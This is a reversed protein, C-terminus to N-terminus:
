GGTTRVGGHQWTSFQVRLMFSARAIAHSRASAYALCSSVSLSGCTPYALPAHRLTMVQGRYAYMCAHTYCWKYRACLANIATLVDPPPWTPLRGESWGTPPTGMAACLRQERTERGPGLPNIGRCRRAGAAARCADDHVYLAAPTRKSDGDTLAATPRHGGLGHGCRPGTGVRECARGCVSGSACMKTGRRVTM